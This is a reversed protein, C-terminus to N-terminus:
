SEDIRRGIPAVIKKIVHLVHNDNKFKADTQIPIKIIEGILIMDEDQLNNAERIIPYKSEDGYFALSINKLTDGKKITYSTYKEDGSSNNNENTTTINENNMSLTLEEITTGKTETTKDDKIPRLALKITGISEALVLKEIDSTPVALTVLFTTSVETIATDKTNETTADERNLQKDVALIEINQMIIKAVDPNTVTQADKKEAIYTIIDVYDGPKILDAVGSDGTASISMARHDSDIKLSLENGDKDLFKGINFGENEYITEKTYEGIIQSSDKIYDSWISNDPVKMAKVMKKDVLTGSPITQTAVIVTIEKTAESPSKLSQLYLFVMLSAFLALVFSILILKQATSKM